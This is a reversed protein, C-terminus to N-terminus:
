HECTVFGVTHPRSICGHEALNVDGSGNGIGSSCYNGAGRDFDFIGLGANDEAAESNFVSDPSILWLM